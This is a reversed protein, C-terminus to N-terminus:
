LNAHRISAFYLLTQISSSITIATICARTLQLLRWWKHLATHLEEMCIVPLEELHSLRIAQSTDIALGCTCHSKAFHIEGSMPCDEHRVDSVSM